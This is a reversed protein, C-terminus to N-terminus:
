SARDEGEGLCVVCKLHEPVGDQDDDVEGRSRTRGRDADTGVARSM